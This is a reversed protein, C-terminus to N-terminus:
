QRKSKLIYINNQGNIAKNINEIETKGNLFEKISNYFDTLEFDINFIDYESIDDEFYGQCYNIGVVESGNKEVYIHRDNSPCWYLNKSKLIKNEM